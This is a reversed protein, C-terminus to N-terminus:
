QKATQIGEWTSPVKIMFRERKIGAVEYHKAMRRASALMTEGDYALRPDLQSSVYGPIIKLIELGFSVALKEYVFLHFNKKEQDNLANYDFKAADQPQGLDNHATAFNHFHTKGFEVAEKIHQSYEPLEAAQLVM